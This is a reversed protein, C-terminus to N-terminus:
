TISGCSGNPRRRLPAYHRRQEAVEVVDGLNQGLVDPLLHTDVVNLGALRAINAAVVTAAARRVKRYAVGWGPCRLSAM